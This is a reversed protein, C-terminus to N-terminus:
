TYKCTRGGNSSLVCCYVRRFVDIFVCLLKANNHKPIQWKDRPVEAKDHFFTYLTILLDCDRM